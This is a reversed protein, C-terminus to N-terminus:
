KLNFERLIVLLLLVHFLFNLKQPSSPSWIPCCPLPLILRADSKSFSLLITTLAGAGKGQEICQGQGLFIHGASYFSVCMWGAIGNVCVTLQPLSFWMGGMTFQTVTNFHEIFNWRSLFQYFVSLILLINNYWTNLITNMNIYYLGGSEM